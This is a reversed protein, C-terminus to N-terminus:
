RRRFRRGALTAIGTGFLMLSAPEPVASQFELISGSGNRDGVFDNDAVRWTGGPDFGGDLSLETFLDFVSSVRVFGPSTTAGSTVMAGQVPRGAEGFNLKFVGGPFSAIFHLIQLTHPAGDPPFVGNGAVEFDISPLSFNFGTTTGATVDRDVGQMVLKASNTGNWDFLRLSDIEFTVTM